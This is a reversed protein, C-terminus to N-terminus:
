TPFKRAVGYTIVFTVKYVFYKVQQKLFGSPQEYLEAYFAFSPLCHIMSQQAAYHCSSEFSNLWGDGVYLIVPVKALVELTIRRKMRRKHSRGDFSHLSNARKALAICDLKPGTSNVLFHGKCCPNKLKKTHAPLIKKVAAKHGKVCQYPQDPSWQAKKWHVSIVHSTCSAWYSSQGWCACDLTAPTPYAPTSTVQCLLQWQVTWSKGKGM